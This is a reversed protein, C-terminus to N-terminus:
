KPYGAVIKEVEGALDPREKKLDALLKDALKRDGAKRYIVQQLIFFDLNKPNKAVAANIEKVVVPNLSNKPLKEALLQYYRLDFLAITSYKRSKALYESAKVFDSDEAALLAAYYYELGYENYQLTLSLLQNSWVRAEAYDQKKLALELLSLMPERRTPYSDAAFRLMKESELFLPDSVSAAADRYVIAATLLIKLDKPHESVLEKSRAIIKDRVIKAWTQNINANTIDQIPRALALYADHKLFSNIEFIKGLDEPKIAQSKSKLDADVQNIALSESMISINQFFCIVITVSAVIMAVSFLWPGRTLGPTVITKDPTVVEKGPTVSQKHGLNSVFGILLGLPLWTVITDFAFLNQIFYVALAALLLKITVGSLSGPDMSGMIEGGSPRPRFSLRVRSVVLAAWIGLYALLGVIGTTALYELIQNHARDHWNTARIESSTPELPVHKNSVYEFNEFGWGFIPKEKFGAWAMQWLELRGEGSFTQYLVRAVPKPLHKEGWSRGPFLLWYGGAIIGIAVITILARKLRRKNTVGSVSGPDMSTTSGPESAPIVVKFLFRRSVFIIGAIAGVVGLALAVGRSGTLAVIAFQCLALGLWLWKLKKGTEERWLILAIFFHMVAYVALFIANGVLTDIRVAARTMTAVDHVVFLGLITAVGLSAIFYKRWEGWSKVTSALILIWLWFHFWSYVGIMRITTSWLSLRWDLSTFLLAFMVAVYISLAAIVPNKWNPRSKPDFYCLAIWALGIISVLLRFLGVRILDPTIFQGAQVSILPLALVLVNGGFILRKLYK